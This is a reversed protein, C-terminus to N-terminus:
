IKNVGHWVRYPYRQEVFFCRRQNDDSIARYGEWRVGNKTYGACDSQNDVYHALSGYAFGGMFLFLAALVYKM